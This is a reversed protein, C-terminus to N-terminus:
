FLNALEALENYKTDRHGFDESVETYETTLIRGAVM